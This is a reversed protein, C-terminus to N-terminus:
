SAGGPPPPSRPAPTAAAGPYLHCRVWHGPEVERIEPLVTDCTEMRRPCRPAFSCGCPLEFLSPVVGPIATLRRARRRPDPLSGLLGITYPHLAGYFITDVDAVEQVKGCYMVVVRQSTEAIVKLDHTILIISGGTRQKMALMLELIQAQITVDLATTPEDAILLAPNEVLAMAIMVRQRMGGSFQHPYDDLRSRAAPIGVADLMALARERAERRPVAEHALVAEAVQDGITFVPNLSTMPEQFVMSIQRGRVERIRDHDLALLDRGRFLIRGGAIFGPPDPILKLISLVTVSKGSGSEGVIGLVEGERVDLDVGDVAKAIGAETRFYTRLGEIRLIEAQGM